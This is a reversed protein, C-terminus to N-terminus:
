KIKILLHSSALWRHSVSTFRAVWYAPILLILTWLWGPCITWSVRDWFCGDCLFPQHVSELLLLAQRAVMFEQTWVGTRCFFFLFFSLFFSCFFFSLKLSPEFKLDKQRLRRLVPIVPTYWWAQSLRAKVTKFLKPNPLLIGWLRLVGINDCLPYM